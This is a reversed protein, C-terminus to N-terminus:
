QVPRPIVPTLPLANTPDDAPTANEEDSLLQVAAHWYDEDRGEPKGDREWLEYAIVKIKAHDLEAM